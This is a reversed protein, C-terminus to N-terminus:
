ATRPIMPSEETGAFHCASYNGTPLKRM